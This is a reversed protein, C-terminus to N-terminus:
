NKKKIGLGNDVISIRLMDNEEIQESKLKEVLIVIKGEKPTFKIANSVLNLLVQQM